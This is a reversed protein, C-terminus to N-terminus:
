IIVKRVKELHYDPNFESNAIDEFMSQGYGYYYRVNNGALVTSGYAALDVSYVYPNGVAKLYNTYSTYSNGVNVENDSLIFVRDYKNGSDQALRWASSLNTGGMHTHNLQKALSFVDLNPNYKVYMANSGFTIVDCNTAKAITAAILAAKSACSVGSTEGKLSDLRIDYYSMSGSLDLLVVNNGPLADKLNPISEVYGKALAMSLRRSNTNSFESQLIENAIDFQYPMIKGQQILVPNSILAELKDMAQASPNTALINRLNRIAALIGLKDTMLLESWNDSKAQTLVVKAQEDTLKGERVAQAVIQGAEAQNTEWTNAKVSMGQMIADITSVVEGNELTCSQGSSKPSPHVLNIVDILKSKYKLLIHTDMREIAEKFGKKMANTLKVGSTNVEVTATHTSLDTTKVEIHKGNLAVFGSIIEGMDDARFVVGGTGKVKNWPGYFRRGFEQGSLYPAVFVSAAHSITRMGEGLCRSYVICQCTLYIDELACEKILTQLEKLTTTETRYYQPQLKLTNLMSLLRHWKNVSYAALGQKNTTDPTPVSRATVLKEQPKTNGIVGALRSNTKSM